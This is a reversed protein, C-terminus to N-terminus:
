PGAVSNLPVDNQLAASLEGILAIPSVPRYEPRLSFVREYFSLLSNSADPIHASVPIFSGNRVATGIADADVGAFPRTGTLMEYSIIGLAWIDWSVSPVIMTGDLQEPSMYEITGALTGAATQMTITPADSDQVARVVLKSLGFDLIKAGEPTLFINEPKLDRHILGHQHATEVGACVARLIRLALNAGVRGTARMESRLTRGQLLEMILFPRTGDAVGFDFVTVVSPHSFKAAIRAEREFRAIAAASEGLDERILKAAVRRQLVLDAAEYVAGMGGAGIRREIRYRGALVRSLNRTVLQSGDNACVSTEWAQCSGCSPCERFSRFELERGALPTFCLALSAAIAELVERDDRSYPEESRRRGLLLLAEHQNESALIPIFLEIRQQEIWHVEDRPLQELLGSRARSADFCKGFLRVLSVIKRDAPLHVQHSTAPARALMHFEPEGPGRVFVCVFEPHLAAQIREVVVGCAKMFDPADRVVQVSQMLLQEANYKERFFHRDIADLWRKRTLHAAIAIGGISAYIWGRQELVQSLQEDSHFALDGALILALGPAISLLTGRAIAYRVGQRILLRIDFLRDRTIAITFSIPISLSALGALASAAPSTIASGLPTSALTGAFAIRPVNAAIAICLGAFILRVRRRENPDTLRRYNALSLVVAAIMYSVWYVPIVLMLWQPLVISLDPRYVFNVAARLIWPQVILDPIWVLLLILRWRSLPRPFLIIFSLFIGFGFCLALENTWLLPHLLLPAHRWAAAFGEPWSTIASCIGLFLAGLLAGIDGPRALLMLVALATYIISAAIFTLQLLVQGAPVNGRGYAASVWFAPRRHHFVLDRAILKGGRELTLHLPRGVEINAVARRWDEDNYIPHGSATLLRDGIRIDAGAAPSDPAVAQVVVPRAFWAATIGPSEPGTLWVIVRLLLNTVLSAAVFYSFFARRSRAM